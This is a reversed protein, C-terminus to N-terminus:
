FGRHGGRRPKQKLVFTRSSMFSRRQWPTLRKIPPRGDLRASRGMMDRDVSEVMAGWFSSATASALCQM